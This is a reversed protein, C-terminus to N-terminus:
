CTRLDGDTVALFSPWSRSGTIYPHCRPPGHSLYRPACKKLTHDPGASEARHENARAVNRVPQAPDGPLPRRADPQDQRPGDDCEMWVGGHDIVARDIDVLAAEDLRHLGRTTERRTAIPSRGPHVGAAGDVGTQDIQVVVRKIVHTRQPGRM